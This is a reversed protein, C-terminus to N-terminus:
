AKEILAPGTKRNSSPIGGLVSPWDDTFILKDLLLVRKSGDMTTEYTDENIKMKYGHYLTWYDGADDMLVSNHGVAKFDASANIITTGKDGGLVSEGSKDVYPGALNESRAVRLNYSYAGSCCQGNSLFLYYYKGKKIIYSGEYTSVDLPRNTPYGAILIKNEKAYEIGGKLALGNSELEVLYIGRFSGWVMYVRGDEQYVMPDISNNVGIEESRFLKGKDEWPGAPHPATAVGIGPNPDDWKSLSYYMVYQGDVYQVDPAWVNARSTGWDPKSKFVSGVYEYNVLDLTKIIKATTGTAFLYYYGDEECKVYSPDAFDADYVPNQYKVTVLKKEETSSEIISSSVSSSTTSSTEEKSSISISNISVESSSSSNDNSSCGFMLLSLILLNIKKM